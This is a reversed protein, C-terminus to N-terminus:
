TRGLYLLEELTREIRGGFGAVAHPESGVDRLANLAVDIAQLDAGREPPPAQQSAQGDGDAPREAQSEQFVRDCRDHERDGAPEDGGHRAVEDRDDLLAAALGSAM